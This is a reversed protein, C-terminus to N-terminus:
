KPRSINSAQGDWDPSKINQIESSVRRVPLSLKFENKLFGVCQQVFLMIFQRMNYFCELPLQHFSPVQM